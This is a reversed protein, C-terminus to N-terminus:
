GVDLAFDIAMQKADDLTKATWAGKGIPVLLFEDKAPEPTLEKEKTDIVVDCMDVIAKSGCTTMQFRIRIGDKRKEVNEPKQWAWGNKDPVTVSDFLEDVSDATYACDGKKVKSGIGFGFIARHSWGYWKQEEPNFGICTTRGGVFGQLQQTVGLQFLKFAKIEDGEHCIYTGDIKSYWCGKGDIGFESPKVEAVKKLQKRRLDLVDDYMM